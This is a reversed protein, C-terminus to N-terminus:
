VKCEALYKLETKDHKEIPFILITVKQTLWQIQMNADFRMIDFSRHFCKKM